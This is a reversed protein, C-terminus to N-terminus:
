TRRRVSNGPSSTHSSFRRSHTHTHRSACAPLATTQSNKISVCTTNCRPRTAHQAVCIEHTGNACFRVTLKRYITTHMNQRPPRARALYRCSQKEVHTILLSRATATYYYSLNQIHHNSYCDARERTITADRPKLLFVHTASLSHRLSSHSQFRPRNILSHYFM